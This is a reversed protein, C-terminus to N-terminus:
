QSQNLVSPGPRREGVGLGAIQEREGALRYELDHSLRDVRSQGPDFLRVLVRLLPNRVTREETVVLRSNRGLASIQFIWRGADRASREATIEHAM